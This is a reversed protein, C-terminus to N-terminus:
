GMDQRSKKTNLFTEAMDTLNCKQCERREISMIALNTLREQNMSTRLHTKILKLKSFSRECSAVSVAITLLIRLAAQLSPFVDEGYSIVFRLLELPTTPQITDTNNRKKLLMQCDLIDRYLKDGDIDTDFFEGTINRQTSLDDDTNLRHGINLLFDFSRDLVGLREFRGTMEM